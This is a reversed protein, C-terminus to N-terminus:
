ETTEDEIPTCVRAGGLRFGTNKERHCRMKPKESDSAAPAADAVETGHGAPTSACASLAAALAISLLIRRVIM